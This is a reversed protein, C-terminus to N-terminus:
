VATTAPAVLSIDHDATSLRHAQVSLPRTYVYVKYCTFQLNYVSVVSENSSVTVRAFSLGTREDSLVSWM